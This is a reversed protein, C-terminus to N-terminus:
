AGFRELMARQLDHAISWINLVRQTDVGDLHAIHWLDPIQLSNVPVTQGLISACVTSSKGEEEDIKKLFEKKLDYAINWVYDIADKMNSSLKITHICNQLSPIEFTRLNETHEGVGGTCFTVIVRSPHNKLIENRIYTWVIGFEFSCLLEQGTRALMYKKEQSHIYRFTSINSATAERESLQMNDWICEAEKQDKDHCDVCKFSKCAKDLLYFREDSRIVRKCDKCTKAEQKKKVEIM